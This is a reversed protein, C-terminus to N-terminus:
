EFTHKQTMHVKRIVYINNNLLSKTYIKINHPPQTNCLNQM